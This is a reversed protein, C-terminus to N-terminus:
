NFKYDDSNASLAYKQQSLVSKYLSEPAKSLENLREILKKFNKVYFRNETATYGLGHATEIFTLILQNNLFARRTAEVIEGEHNIDLYFDCELFLSDLQSMRVNPYMVVNDYKEHALLKASMETLAAVHFQMEPLAELLEKLKEVNETNTCILASPRGLNEREFPYIFGLESIMNSPAKLQRLKEYSPRNQVIVRGCRPANGDFIMKMNGPIEEGTHEQWFLIDGKGRSSVPLANSVFFPVSLSNFFIRKDTLGKVEFYHKVFETRNKFFLTKGGYNLIIDGTVFNEVVIEQGSKNFYSKTVKQSIKNFLTRAYLCGYKNYHDSARVQGKDDLWDVVRVLRKNKPQAYFIRGRETSMDYISGGNGTGSIKWYEPVKIQNFYLPKGPGEGPNEFSGLFYEFVNEVSDPLFGDDNIVAANIEYGAAQFSALLDQSQRNFYDFLLVISDRSAEEM